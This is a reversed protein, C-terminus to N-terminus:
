EMDILDEKKLHWEKRKDFFLILLTILSIVNNIDNGEVEWISGSNKKMFTVSAFALIILALQLRRCKNKLYNKEKIKHNEDENKLIYKDMIKFLIFNFLSNLIKTLLLSIFLSIPFSDYKICSKNIINYTKDMMKSSVYLLFLSDILIYMNGRLYTNISIYEKKINNDIINDFCMIPILIFICIGWFLEKMINAFCNEKRLCALSLLSSLIVFILIILLYVVLIKALVIQSKGICKFYLLIILILIVFSGIIYSKFVNKKRVELISIYLILIDELTKKIISM